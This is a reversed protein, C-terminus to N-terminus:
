QETAQNTIQRTLEPGIFSYLLNAKYQALLETEQNFGTFSFYIFTTLHGIM